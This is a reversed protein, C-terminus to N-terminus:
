SHHNLTLQILELDELIKNFSKKSVGMKGYWSEEFLCTIKKFDKRIEPDVLEAIYDRNTKDKRWAIWNKQGLQKLCHLYLIRLANRYDEESIYENLLEKIQQDSVNLLDDEMKEVSVKPDLGVNTKSRNQFLQFLLFTLALISSVILLWKILVTLYSPMSLASSGSPFLKRSKHIDRQRNSEDVGEKSNSGGDFTTGEGYDPLNSKKLEWYTKDIQIVAPQGNTLPQSFGQSIGILLLFSWKFYKM